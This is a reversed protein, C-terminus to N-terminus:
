MKRSFSSVAAHSYEARAVDDKKLEVWKIKEYCKEIVYPANV